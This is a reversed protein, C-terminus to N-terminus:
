FQHYSYENRHMKIFSLSREKKDRTLFFKSRKKKKKLLHIILYNMQLMCWVILRCLKNDITVNPVKYCYQFIKYIHLTIYTIIHTYSLRRSICQLFLLAILIWVLLFICSQIFISQLIWFSIHIIILRFDKKKKIFTIM